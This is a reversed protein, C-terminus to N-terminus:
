KDEAKSKSCSKWHMRKAGGGIGLNECRCEKCRYKVGFKTNKQFFPSEPYLDKWGGPVLVAKHKSFVGNKLVPVERKCFPCKKSRVTSRESALEYSGFCFGQAKAAESM